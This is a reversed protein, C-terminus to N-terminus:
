VVSKRDADEDLGSLDLLPKSDLSGFNDAFVELAGLVESDAVQKNGVLGVHVVIFRGPPPRHRGLRVLGQCGVLVALLALM